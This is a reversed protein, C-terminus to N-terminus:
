RPFTRNTFHSNPHRDHDCVDSPAVPLPVTEICHGAGNGNSSYWRSNRRFDYPVADDGFIQDVAPPHHRQRGTGLLGANMHDVRVAARVYVRDLHSM